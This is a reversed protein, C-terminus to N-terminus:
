IQFDSIYNIIPVTVADYMIIIQVDYKLSWKPKRMLVCLYNPKMTQKNKKKKKANMEVEGGWKGL